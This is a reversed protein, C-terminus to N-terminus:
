DKHSMSFSDYFNECRGNGVEEIIFIYDIIVMLNEDLNDMYSM